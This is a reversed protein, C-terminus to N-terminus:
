FYKEIILIEVDVMWDALDFLDYVSAGNIYIEEIEFRDGTGDYGTGDKRYMIRDDGKYHTGEVSVTVGYFDIEYSM